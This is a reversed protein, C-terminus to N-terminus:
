NSENELETASVDYVAGRYRIRYPDDIGFAPYTGHNEEVYRVREVGDEFYSLTNRLRNDHAAQEPIVTRPEAAEDVRRLVFEANRGDSVGGDGRVTVTDGEREPGSVKATPELTLDPADMEFLVGFGVRGETREGFWGDVTFAYEGGSLGGVTGSSSWGTYRRGPNAPLEHEATLRWEHSTGPALPTLPAPAVGPVVHHWEGDVRKWLSWAYHNTSLTRVAHNRLTFEFTAPLSESHSDATLAVAASGPDIESVCVVRDGPTPPCDSENAPVGLNSAPKLRGLCGALGAIGAAATGLLARRRM